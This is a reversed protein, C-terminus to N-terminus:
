SRGEISQSRLQRVMKVADGVDERTGGLEILELDRLVQAIASPSPSPNGSYFGRELVRIQQIAVEKIVPNRVKAGLQMSQGFAEVFDGLASKMIVRLSDPFSCNVTHGEDIIQCTNNTLSVRDLTGRVTVPAVVTENLLNTVLLRVTSNVGATIDKGNQYRLAINSVGHKLTESIDRVAIMVGYDFTEPVHSEGLQGMGEVMRRTARRGLPEADHNTFLDTQTYDNYLYFEAYGKARDIQPTDLKCAAAVRREDSTLGGPTAKSKGLALVQGVRTVCLQVNDILMTMDNASIRAQPGQLNLTLLPEDSM